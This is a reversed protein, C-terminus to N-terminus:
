HRQGGQPLHCQGLAPGSAVHVPVVEVEPLGLAGARVGEGDVPSHPSAAPDDLCRQSLWEPSPQPSLRPGWHCVLQEPRESLLFSASRGLTSGRSMFPEAPGVCALAHADLSDPQLETLVSATAAYGCACQGTSVVTGALAGGM